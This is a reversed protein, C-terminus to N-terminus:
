LSQCLRKVCSGGRLVRNIKSRFGHVTDFSKLLFTIGMRMLSSQITPSQSSSLVVIKQKNRAQRISRVIQFCDMDPMVANTIVLDIRHQRLYNIAKTADDFFITHNGNFLYQYSSRLDKNDIIVISFKASVIRMIEREYVFNYATM